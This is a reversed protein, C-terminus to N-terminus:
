RLIHRAFCAYHWPPLSFNLIWYHKLACSFNLRTSYRVIDLAAENVCMILFMVIIEISCFNLHFIFWNEIPWWWVDCVVVDFFFFFMFFPFTFFSIFIEYRNQTHVSTYSATHVRIWISGNVHCIQIFENAYVFHRFISQLSISTTDNYATM